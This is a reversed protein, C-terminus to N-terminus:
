YDLCTTLERRLHHVQEGRLLAYGAFRHHHVGVLVLQDAEGDVLAPGHDSSCAGLCTELQDLANM